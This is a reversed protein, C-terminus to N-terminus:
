DRSPAPYIPRGEDDFLAIANTPCVEAADQLTQDDAAAPDEVRAKCQFDLQFVKPAVGICNGAGICRDRYVRVKM